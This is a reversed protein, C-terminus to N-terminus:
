TTGWANEVVYQTSLDSTLIEASGPGSGVRCTVDFEPEDMVKKAAELSGSPAGREFVTESGIAIDIRALELNRDSQGLAAAVRGWNPDSGHVAARWLASAAVARGLDVAHREDSAGEIQIRVLRSGGEADSVMQYALDRCISTLASEFRDLDPRGKHGTALLFVSDNTSECADVSIRNFSYEVARGLAQQAEEGKVDADTTVFALMTAMNPALMAAGKAVGAITCGDVEVSSTKTRTDTTLISRAFEGAESSREDAVVPLAAEILEVPLPVGIVGTSAVLVEEASCGIATASASATREVVRTGDPGTCANANGSNVVIARVAKGLQAKCWHVPAAAAANHTFTGAWVVPVDAVIIGLDPLEGGKIGCSGGASTIGEPWKM